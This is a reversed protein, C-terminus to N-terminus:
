LIESLFKAADEHHTSIALAQSISMFNDITFYIGNHSALSQELTSRIGAVFHCNGELMAERAEAPTNFSVIQAHVLLALLQTEYAAGRATAIRTGAKDVDEYNTTKISGAFTASVHMIEHIYRVQTRSSDVALVALDWASEQALVAGGSAFPIIRVELGLLSALRAALEAAPGTFKGSAIERIISANAMNVAFRIHGRPAIQNLVVASIM